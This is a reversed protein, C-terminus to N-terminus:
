QLTASAISINGCKSRDTVTFLMKSALQKKKSPSFYEKAHSTCHECGFFLLPRLRPALADNYNAVCNRGLCVGHAVSGRHSIVVFLPNPVPKRAGSTAIEITSGPPRELRGCRELM